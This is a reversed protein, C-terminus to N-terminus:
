GGVVLLGIIVSILIFLFAGGDIRGTPTVSHRRSLDRHFDCWLCEYRESSIQALAKRGCNPCECLVPTNNRLEHM